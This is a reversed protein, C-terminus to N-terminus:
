SIESSSTSVGRTDSDSAVVSMVGGEFRRSTSGTMERLVRVRKEV